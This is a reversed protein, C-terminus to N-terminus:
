PGVDIPCDGGCRAAITICRDLENPDFGDRVSVDFRLRDLTTGMICNSLSLDRTAREGINYGVFAVTRTGEPWDPITFGNIFACLDRDEDVLLDDEFIVSGPAVGQKFAEEISGCDTIENFVLLRGRDTNIVHQENTFSFQIPINKTRCGGLVVGLFISSCALFFSAYGRGAHGTVDGLRSTM